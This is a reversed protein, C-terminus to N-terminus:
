YKYNIKFIIGELDRIYGSGELGESGKCKGM